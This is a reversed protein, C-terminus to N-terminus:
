IKTLQKKIEWLLLSKDGNIGNIRESGEHICDIAKPWNFPEKELNIPRWGGTHMTMRNSKEPYSTTLLYRSGSEGIQKVARNIDENSFHILCDRCLILDVQPLQDNLLDLEIFKRGKKGYIENNKDILEPVIDAGIYDIGALDIEKLWHFDGCPLDLISKIAYKKLLAPLLQRLIATEKLSSGPGSISENSGWINHEYISKFINAANKKKFFIGAAVDILFLETKLRWIELKNPM